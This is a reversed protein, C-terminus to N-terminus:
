SGPKSVDELWAFDEHLLGVMVWADMQSGTILGLDWVWSFNGREPWFFCSSLGRFRVVNGSNAVPVVGAKLIGYWYNTLSLLLGKEM